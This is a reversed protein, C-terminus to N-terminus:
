NKVVSDANELEKIKAELEAIANWDNGTPCIQPSRQELTALLGDRQAKLRNLQEKLASLNAM